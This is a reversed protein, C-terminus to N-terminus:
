LFDHVVPSAGHSVQSTALLWINPPGLYINLIMAKCQKNFLQRIFTSLRDTWITSAKMTEVLPAPWDGGTRARRLCAYEAWQHTVWFGNQRMQQPTPLLALWSMRSLHRTHSSCRCCRTVRELFYLKCLPPPAWGDWTFNVGNHHLALFLFIRDKGGKYM